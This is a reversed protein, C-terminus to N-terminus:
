ILAIVNGIKFLFKKDKKEAKLAPIRFFGPLLNLGFPYLMSLGFSMLTDKLLIKQTNTYVACFCTIFYWFFFLLIYNLIFFLIFKILLCKKIKKIIKKQVNLNKEQKVMLINNESLSLQKLIMNIVASITSSYLIQPIQTIINFKGNDEYVKHMTDDNFFFGNITFYLSFSILFLCIKISHLNYDNNPYFTFLILQKKKLLSWYYQFYTRKDILLAEEYMLSNLEQDNLNQYKNEINKNVIHNKKFIKVKNNKNNNKEKKAKNLKKININEIKIININQRHNDIKNRLRNNKHITDNDLFRKSTTNIDSTKLFKQNTIHIKNKHIKNKKPPDNKKRNLKNKKNPIQNLDNKSKSKIINKTKENSKICNREKKKNKKNSKINSKEKKENKKNSKINHNSVNEIYINIKNYNCFDFVLFFIFSIFIIITMFIRGINKGFDKFDFALKYCKLVLFNSYKLTTFFSDSIDKIDFKNNSSVTETEIDNTQPSCSCKAKRNTSNYSVVECDSQCLSINVNQSYIIKKRDNLTMDTNNETTYVSCVDNYFSDEENFLNYGSQKLSEYLSSTYNDLIVPSSITIKLDDCLSLDLLTFNIPEYIEYQVYTQTLDSTKIDIKYIILSDNIIKYHYKLREECEGLNISSIDPNDSNEQEELKAIQFIVNETEIINNTFNNKNFYNQIYNNKIENYLNTLQEEEVFGNVCKNNIIDENICSKEVSSALDTVYETKTTQTLKESITETMIIDKQKETITETTIIDNTQSIIETTIIDKSNETFAETTIIDSTEPIIETTVM